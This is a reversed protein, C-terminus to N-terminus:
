PTGELILKSITELPVPQYDWVDVGCNIMRGRQRWKEHVHGCLLWRGDDRLRFQGYRMDSDDEFYPMHCLNVVAVGPIDLETQIPLVEWGCSRYFELQTEMRPGRAKKNAPHCWDHNGPVLLKRGMLRPSITEVPRRALSFDGLCYVTDDPRVVANWRRILDENMEEVSRHPRGCYVIVNAHWYHPDSTFWVSM